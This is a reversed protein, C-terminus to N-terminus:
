PPSEASRVSHHTPAILRSALAGRVTAHAVHGFMDALAPYFSEERADGQAEVAALDKLYKRFLAKKSM